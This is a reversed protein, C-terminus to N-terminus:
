FDTIHLTKLCKNHLSVIFSYIPNYYPLSFSENAQKYKHLYVHIYLLLIPIYHIEAQIYFFSVM